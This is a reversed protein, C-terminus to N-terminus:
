APPDPTLAEDSIKPNFFERQFCIRGDRFRFVAIYTNAYPKGTTSMYGDSTFEVVLEDPDVCEHVETVTLRMRYVLFARSLRALVLEKGELRAPPSTFPLELVVDDTYHELQRAADAAGVADFAAMVAALNARRRGDDATLRM